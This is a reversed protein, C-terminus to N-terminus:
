PTVPGDLVLRPMVRRGSAVRATMLALELPTATIYGQGIGVNVTDGATWPENYRARKWAETPMNGARVGPLPLDLAEGMGFERAAEAIRDVGLRRAVEYFYIDCSQKIADHLDVSGHAKWCHFRARGL